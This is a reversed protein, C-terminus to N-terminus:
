APPGSEQRWIPGTEHFEIPDEADFEAQLLELDALSLRESYLAMGLAADIQMAHLAKIEDLTTIGGAATIAHRTGARLRGFWALDAGLMLGEHDVDTCLFGACYPEFAGLMAEAELRTSEQWGHTVIKGARTDLAIMVRAPGVAAALGELFATNIGHPSFASTGVILWTAGQDLVQKAREVSRIGGGVRCTWRGALQAIAEGNSGTGKAGDLDIIQLEPFHTFREAVALPDGAEIALERGQVLQVAQGGQIDICPIIM